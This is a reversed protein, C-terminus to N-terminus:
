DIAHQVEINLKTGVKPPSSGPERERSLVNVLFRALCCRVVVFLFCGLNHSKAVGEFTTGCVCLRKVTADLHEFLKSKLVDWREGPSDRADM